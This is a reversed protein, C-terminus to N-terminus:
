KKVFLLSDILYRATVDFTMKLVSSAVRERGAHPRLVLGSQVESPDISEQTQSSRSCRCVLVAVQSGQEKAVTGNYAVVVISLCCNPRLFARCIM